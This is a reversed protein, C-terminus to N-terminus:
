NRFRKSKNVSRGLASYIKDEAHQRVSCTNFFVADADAMTATMDWGQRRLAAVVLEGDLVNMQCGVTEIFLRKTSVCKIKDWPSRTDRPAVSIPLQSGVAPVEVFLIPQQCPENEKQIVRQIALRSGEGCAVVLCDSRIEVVIGPTASSDGSLGAVVETELCVLRRFVNRNPVFATIRPWPDFARRRRDIELATM